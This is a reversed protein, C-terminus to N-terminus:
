AQQPFLIKEVKGELRPRLYAIVSEVSSNIEVDGVRVVLGGGINVTDDSLTLRSPLDGMDRGVISRRYSEMLREGLKERDKKNLLVEYSPRAFDSEELARAREGDLEAKLVSTLMRLLLDLRRNDDLALLENQATEFARDIMEARLSLVSAKRVTREGSKARAVIEGASKKAEANLKEATARALGSYEENIKKCEADAEARKKAADAKAESIIKDTIKSLGTM